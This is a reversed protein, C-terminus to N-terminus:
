NENDTVAKKLRARTRSVRKKVADVSIGIQEAAESYPRGEILCLECIRRDVPDLQEIEDLVWRLQERAEDNARPDTRPDARLEDSLEDTRHKEHRRRLNLGHNRCTVLLWPLLSSDPLVITDSKLWVTVFTDQVLEEVDMKTDAVAWAYRTVTPAYRDFLAALAESDGIVLRALLESDADTDTNNQQSM